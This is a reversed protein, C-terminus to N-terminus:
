HPKKLLVSLMTRSRSINLQSSSWTNRVIRVSSSYTRQFNESLTEATWEKWWVTEMAAIKNGIALLHCEVELFNNTARHRSFHLQLWSYSSPRQCYLLVMWHVCNLWPGFSFAKTQGSITLIEERPKVYKLDLLSLSVSFKQPVAPFTKLNKQQNKKPKFEKSTM